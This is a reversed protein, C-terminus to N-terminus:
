MLDAAAILHRRNIFHRYLINKGKKHITGRGILSKAYLTIIERNQDESHFVDRPICSPILQLEDILSGQPNIGFDNIKQETEIIKKGKYKLSIYEMDSNNKYKLKFLITDIIDQVTHYNIDYRTKIKNGAPTEILLLRHHPNDLYESLSEKSPQLLTVM